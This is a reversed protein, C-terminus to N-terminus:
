YGNCTRAYFATPRCWFKMGVGRYKSKLIEDVRVPIKMFIEHFKFESIEHSLYQKDVYLAIRPM